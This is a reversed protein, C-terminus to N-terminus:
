LEDYGEIDGYQWCGIHQQKAKDELALLEEREKSLLKEFPKLNKKKVLGWGETVMEKNISKSPDTAILKADYLEVDFEVNPEPNTFTVSAVAKLDLLDDLFYLAEKRYEKQGVPPINILSLQAIHAQAKYVSLSFEAPLGCIDSIPITEVTAYDVHQVKVDKNGRNIELVKARYFKGNDKLKAAVIEGRKVSTVSPFNKSVSHLKQMFTKLKAREDDLIHLGLLGNDLVECIEVNLYKREIKLAELNDTVTDVIDNSPDYNKWIGLKSNKAETEAAKMQTGFKTDNLSREHTEALGDKLLTVQFPLKSGTLYINGIFSGIKDTGYIEINVDRQYFKKSALALAQEALPDGKTLTNALGGLVLTLKTGEKPLVIRFRNGSIVHEVIGAIKNRNQFSFLYPKAKTANESADVINEPAPAKGHIGKKAKTAAVETEILSDWYDPRDDSKRHRIVSAFGNAVIDENLNIGDNTRITVLPREEYQENAERIGEVSVDVHKGILKHRVYEKAVPAFLATSADSTRPAKLSILQATIETDDKLRLVVTDASIVRGVVAEFRRGKQISSSDNSSSSNIAAQKKWLKKGANRASKEAKRLVAMSKAGVFSSQWDSVEALGEELLREAINGNPHIIDGITVGTSSEGVVIIEVSRLLLKSEVFQKAEDGFEEGAEEASSSRPTKVGAILVPCVCHERESILFRALIRDGSLVKEVIASIPENMGILSSDIKPEVAIKYNVSGWIGVKNSQAEKQIGRYKEIDEDDEFINDKLKAAGKSLVYEILSPFIPSSVDGFERNSGNKYLVWFKIKKGVLLTRLVERAEFAFKDNSQIRPSELYALTLLREQSGNPSTLVLTDASLVSKVVAFYVSMTNNNDNDYHWSIPAKDLSVYSNVLSTQTKGIDTRTLTLPNCM